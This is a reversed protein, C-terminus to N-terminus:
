CSYSVLSGAEWGPMAWVIFAFNGDQWATRELLILLKMTSISFPSKISNTEHDEDFRQAPYRDVAVRQTLHAELRCYQWVLPWTMTGPAGSGCVNILAFKRIAVRRYNNM